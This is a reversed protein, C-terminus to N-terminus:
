REGDGERMNNYDFIPRQSLYTIGTRFEPFQTSLSNCPIGDSEPIGPIPEFEVWNRFETQILNPSSWSNVSSPWYRTPRNYQIAIPNGYNSPVPEPTPVSEAINLM